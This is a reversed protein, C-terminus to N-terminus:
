LSMTLWEWEQPGSPGSVNVGQGMAGLQLGHTPSTAHAVPTADKKRLPIKGSTDEADAMELEQVGAASRRRLRKSAINVSRGPAPNSPAAAQMKPPGPAIAVVGTKAAATPNSTGASTNASAVSAASTGNVSGTTSQPSESGNALAKASTPTPVPAQVISNKRSPKKSSRTSASGSPITAGSGRNRKKIVDTKLSLPRVVGHLKLFLGCANCLPQGEPNRRWLPTTQTFCNTCTTPGANADGPRTGGPSAPRSPAASSFGSEPPSNPSSQPRHQMGPAQILGAANPTSSTRPIKQRRPDNGRNRIDSVSAASGHTRSLSGSSGWDQPSPVMETPGITVTKRPPGGPYRAPTPNFQNSLNTEWQLGAGYDFTPDDMPSFEPQMLMNRDPFSGVDEDENDSEMGFTFMRDNRPVQMASSQLTTSFDAQLVQSPDVHGSLNYPPAAFSPMSNPATIASFISESSPNYIYQPQMSTSVNPHRFQGFGHAARPKPQPLSHSQQQLQTHQMDVNSQDFYIQDSDNMPLPTSATSPYASGPPSFCDTSNLSTGLPTANYMASFPAHGQQVPPSGIPSFTFQQQFPGASSVVPGNDLNFTDLAFPINLHHLNHPNPTPLDNPHDLTYNDLALDGDPEHPIM